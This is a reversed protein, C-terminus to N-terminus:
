GLCPLWTTGGDTTHYIQGYSGVMWGNDKDFWDTGRMWGHIEMGMSARRWPDAPSEKRVVESAAGVAWGTRDTFQHVHFLPDVLPIKLDFPEFKWTKGGNHTSAIRGELGSALGNMRDVFHAGFFSPLDLSDYLGEGGLLSQQQEVWSRGGDVTAYIKGFEGVIWGTNRDVFHVDYLVPENSILEEEASAGATRAMTAQRWTRGGDTTHLYTAKDGVAWGERTDIFDIAFLFLITGSQQREWTQGGDTTHLILGYQGSIWGENSNVFIVSYLARDTGTKLTTWTRGGDETLLAKGAYGVVIAREQDFALVDFYKDAFSIKRDFLPVSEANENHCGAIALAVGLCFVPLWYQRM